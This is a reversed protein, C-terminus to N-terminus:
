FVLRFLLQCTNRNNIILFTFGFFARLFTHFETRNNSHAFEANFYLWSVFNRCNGFIKANTATNADLFTRKSRNLDDIQGLIHLLLGGM